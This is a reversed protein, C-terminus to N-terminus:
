GECGFFGGLGKLCVFLYSLWASNRVRAAKEPSVKKAVGKLLFSKIKLFDPKM